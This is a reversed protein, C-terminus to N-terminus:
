EEDWDLDIHEQIEEPSAKFAAPVRVADYWQKFTPRQGLMPEGKEEKRQRAAMSLGVQSKKADSFTKCFKKYASKAANRKM